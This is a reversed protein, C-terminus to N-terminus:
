ARMWPWVVRCWPCGWVGPHRQCRLWRLGQRCQPCLPTPPECPRALLCTDIHTALCAIVVLPVEALAPDTDCIIGDDVEMTAHNMQGDQLWSVGALGSETQRHPVFWREQVACGLHPHCTSTGSLHRCAIPVPLTM